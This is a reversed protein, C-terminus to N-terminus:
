KVKEYCSWDISRTRHGRYLYDPILPFPMSTNGEYEYSILNGFGDYKHNYYDAYVVQDPIYHPLEDPFYSYRIFFGKRESVPQFPGWDLVELLSYFPHIFIFPTEYYQRKNKQTYNYGYEVGLQQGPYYPFEDPNLISLINGRNDTKVVYENVRSLRGNRDYSLKLEPTTQGLYRVETAHGTRRDFSIAFSRTDRLEDQEVPHTPADPEPYVEPGNPDQEPPNDLDWYYTKVSGKFIAKGNSYSIGFDFVRTGGDLDRLQAKIRKLVMNNDFEKIVYFDDTLQKDENIAIAHCREKKIENVIRVVDKKSCAMLLSVMLLTFLLRM